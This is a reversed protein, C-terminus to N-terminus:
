RKCPLTENNWIKNSGLDIKVNKNQSWKRRRYTFPHIKTYIVVFSVQKLLIFTLKL